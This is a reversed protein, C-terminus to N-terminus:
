SGTRGDATGTRMAGRRWALHLMATSALLSVVLAAASAEPGFGGGSLLTDVGPVPVTGLPGGTFGDTGSVQAGFLWGQAFNWGAHMAISAWIRGTILYLGIAVGEGAVLCAAAFLSADPNALHLAGFLLASGAIAPWVGFARWLLRLVILRLVLEELVGSRLADRLALALGDVPRATIAVWGATWQIAIVAAVLGTGLALGLAIDKGAGRLGLETVERREAWGVACRYFALIAAVGAVAGALKIGPAADAVDGALGLTLGRAAANYLVVTAVTLLVLWALARLRLWRGPVLIGASGLAVM